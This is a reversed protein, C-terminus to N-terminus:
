RGQVVGTLIYNIIRRMYDSSHGRGQTEEGRDGRMGTRPTGLEAPLWDCAALGRIREPGPM